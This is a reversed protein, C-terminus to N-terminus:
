CNGNLLCVNATLKVIAPLNPNAVKFETFDVGLEELRKYAKDGNHCSDIITTLEETLKVLDQYEAIQRSLQEKFGPVLADVEAMLANTSRQLLNYLAYNTQDRVIDMRAGIVYSNIDSILSNIKWKDFRKYKEKLDLLADHFQQGLREVPEVDKFIRFIIPKIAAEVVIRAADWIENKRASAKNTIFDRLDSKRIGM